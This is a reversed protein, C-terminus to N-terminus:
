NIASQKPTDKLADQELKQNNQRLVGDLRAETTPSIDQTKNGLVEDRQLKAQLERDKIMIDNAQQQSIKGAELKKNVEAEQASIKSQVQNQEPLLQASNAWLATSVVCLSATLLYSITVNRM